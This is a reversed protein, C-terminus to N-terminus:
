KGSVRVVFSLPGIRAAKCARAVACNNENARVGKRISTKTVNITRIM